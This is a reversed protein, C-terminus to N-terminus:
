CISHSVGGLSFGNQVMRESGQEKRKGVQKQTQEEMNIEGENRSVGRDGCVVASAATILSLELHFQLLM